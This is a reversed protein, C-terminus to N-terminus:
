GLAGFATEYTVFWWVMSNALALLTMFRRDPRIGSM